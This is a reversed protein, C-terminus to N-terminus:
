YIQMFVIILLSGIGILVEAIVRKVSYSYIKEPQNRDYRITVPTGIQAALSVQMRNKSVITRGNVSYSVLALKANRWKENAPNTSKISVIKGHTKVTKGHKLLFFIGDFIAFSFFIIAMMYLIMEDREM